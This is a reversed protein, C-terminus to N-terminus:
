GVSEETSDELTVFKWGSATEFEWKQKETRDRVIYYPEEYYKVLVEVEAEYADEDFDVFEIKSEVIKQKSKRISRILQRLENRSEEKALSLATQSRGWYVADHFENVNSELLRVRDERSVGIESYTKILPAFAVCGVLQTALVGLAGLALFRVFVKRM